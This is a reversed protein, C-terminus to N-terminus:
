GPERGRQQEQQRLEAKLQGIREEIDSITLHATQLMMAFNGVHPPEREPNNNNRGIEQVIEEVEEMLRRILFEREEEAVYGHWGLHGREKDHKRLDKEMCLAFYLVDPRLVQEASTTPAPRSRITDIIEDQMMYDADDMTHEPISFLHHITEIQKETIIYEKQPEPTM